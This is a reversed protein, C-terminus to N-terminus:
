SLDEEDFRREPEREALKKRMAHEWIKIVEEPKIERAGPVIKTGARVLGRLARDPNLADGVVLEALNYAERMIRDHREGPPACDIAIMASIVLGHDDAGDAVRSVFAEHNFAARAAAARKLREVSPTVVHEAGDIVIVRPMDLLPDDDVNEFCPASTFIPQNPTYISRDVYRARGLWQVKQECTLPRDLQFVLRLRAGGRIGYSGTASAVCRVGRFETPLQERAYLAQPRLGHIEPPVPMKDIDIFLWSSPKDVLTAKWIRKPDKRGPTDYILKRMNRPDADATLAGYVVCTSHQGQLYELANLGREFTSFDLGRGGFFTAGEYNEIEDPNAGFRVLKALRPTGAPRDGYAEHHLATLALM